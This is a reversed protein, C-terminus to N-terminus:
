SETAHTHAHTQTHTRTHAHTCTQTQTHTDAHVHRQTQTHRRTHKHTHTCTTRSVACWISKVKISVSFKLGFAGRVIISPHYHTTCM